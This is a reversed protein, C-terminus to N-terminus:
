LITEIIETMYICLQMCVVGLFGRKIWFSFRADLITYIAIVQHKQIKVFFIIKWFKYCALNNQQTSLLTPVEWDIGGLTLKM